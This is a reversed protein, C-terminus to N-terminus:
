HAARALAPQSFVMAFQGQSRQILPKEGLGHPYPFFTQDAYPRYREALSQACRAATRVGVIARDAQWPGVELGTRSTADSDQENVWNRPILEREQAALPTLQALPYGRRLYANAAAILASFRRDDRRCQMQEATAELYPELAQASPRALIVGDITAIRTTRPDMLALWKAALPHERDIIVATVRHAAM